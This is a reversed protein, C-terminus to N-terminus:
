KVYIDFNYAPKLNLGLITLYNAWDILAKMIKRGTVFKNRLKIRPILFKKNPTGFFKHLTYIFKNTTFLLKKPIRFLKNGIKKLRFM